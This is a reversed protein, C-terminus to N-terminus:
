KNDPVNRKTRYFSKTGILHPKTVLSYPIKERHYPKRRSLSAVRGPVRVRVGVRYGSAQKTATGHPTTTSPSARNIIATRACRHFIAQSRASLDVRSVCWCASVCVCVCRDANTRQQRFATPGSSAFHFTFPHHM